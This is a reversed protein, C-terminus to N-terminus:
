KNVIRPLFQGFGEVNRCCQSKSESTRFRRYANEVLFERCVTICIVTIRMSVFAWGCVKRSLIFRDCGVTQLGRRGTRHSSGLGTLSSSEQNKVPLNKSRRVESQFIWLEGASHCSLDFTVKLTRAPRQTTQLETDSSRHTAAQVEPGSTWAPKRLKIPKWIFKSLSFKRYMPVCENSHQLSFEELDTCVCIIFVTSYKYALCLSKGGCIM